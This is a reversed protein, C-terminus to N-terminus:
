RNIFFNLRRMPSDIKRSREICIYVSLNISLYSSKKDAHVKAFSNAVVIQNM